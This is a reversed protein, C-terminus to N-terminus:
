MPRTYSQRGADQLLRPRFTDARGACVRGTVVCCLVVLGGQGPLRPDITEFNSFCCAQLPDMLGQQKLGSRTRAGGFLVV